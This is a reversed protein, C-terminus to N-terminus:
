LYISSLIISILFIASVISIKRQLKTANQSLYISGNLASIAQFAGVLALIELIPIMGQWQQGLIVLVIESTLVHLGIMLPFSVLAIIRTTKLFWKKILEKDNQIISFTPFLVKSFSNTIYNIPFQMLTYSRNYLGLAEKGLEKGIALDDINRILFGIIQTHFLPTSFSTLKKIDNINFSFDPKWNSILLTFLTKLTTLTILKFVLAWYGFGKYALFIGAIASLLVSLFDVIFIKKFKLHKTMLAYPILYFAGIVLELAFFGIIDKLLPENFFYALFSSFLWFFLAIISSLFFHLWYVSSITNQNTVKLQIIAEMLGINRFLYLFRSLALAIAVLGFDFPTLIRAIIIWSSLSILQTIIQSLFSWSLGDLVKHRLDNM